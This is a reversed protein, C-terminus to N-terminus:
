STVGDDVPTEPLTIAAPASGNPETTRREQRRHLMRDVIRNVREDADITQMRVSRVGESAMSGTSDRIIGPLDVGEIIQETLAVLDVEALIAAIDVHEVVLKTIDIEDLVADVVQPALAHVIRVVAEQTATRQQYGEETVRHVVTDSRGNDLVSVTRLMRKAIPAAPSLLRAGFQATRFGMRGAAVGLGVALDIVPMQGSLGLSPQPAPTVVSSEVVEGPVVAAADPATRQAPAAPHTPPTDLSM